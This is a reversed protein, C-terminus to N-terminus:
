GHIFVAIAMALIALGLVVSMWGEELDTQRSRPPLGKKEPM